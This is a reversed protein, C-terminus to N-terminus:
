QYKCIKESAKIENIISIFINNSFVTAYHNLCLGSPLPNSVRHPSKKFKGLGEPRV